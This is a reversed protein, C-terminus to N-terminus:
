QVRGVPAAARLQEHIELAVHAAVVVADLSHHLAGLRAPQLADLAEKAACLLQNQVFTEYEATAAATDEDKPAEFAPRPGCLPATHTHIGFYLINEEPIGTAETLARLNEEPRPAKDLDFSVILARNEGDSLAIVRLYIDDLVACFKRGMLGYLRPLLTEPPTICKKAAGCLLKHEM